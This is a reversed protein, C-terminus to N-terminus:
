WKSQAHICKTCKCGVGRITDQGGEMLSGHGAMRTRSHGFLILLLCAGPVTENRLHLFNKKLDLQSTKETSVSVVLPPVDDDDQDIKEEECESQSRTGLDLDALDDLDDGHSCEFTEEDDALSASPFPSIAFVKM